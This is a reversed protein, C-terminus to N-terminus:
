VRDKSLAQWGWAPLLQLSDLGFAHMHAWPKWPPEKTLLIRFSHGKAYCLNLLNTHMSICIVERSPSRLDEAKATFMDKSLEAIRLVHLFVWCLLFKAWFHERNESILCRKVAADMEPDSSSKTSKQLTLSIKHLVCLKHLLSFSCFGQTLSATVQPMCLSMETSMWIFIVFERLFSFPYFINIVFIASWAIIVTHSRELCVSASDRNM